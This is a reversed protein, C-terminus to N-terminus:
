RGLDNILAPQTFDIRQVVVKRNETVDFTLDVQEDGVEETLPEVEALYFGKEIYLDRIAEVNGKVDTQNLVSMSRVDLVERIDDEDVKKNGEIKVDRISPKESVRFLVDVGDESPLLEVVVDRFWGTAYVAKIDRRVKQPTLQEGRRLGVAALVAAEDIRRTGEVTVRAVEGTAEVPAAAQAPAMWVPSVVGLVLGLCLLLVARVAAARIM